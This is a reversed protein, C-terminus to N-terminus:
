FKLCDVTDIAATNIYHQTTKTNSHGLVAAAKLIGHENAVTHGVFHRLSHPTIRGLSPELRCWRRFLQAINTAGLRNYRIDHFLPASGAPSHVSGKQVTCLPKFAVYSDYYGKVTKGNWVRDLLVTKIEREDEYRLIHKQKHVSFSITSDSITVHEVNLATLQGIRMGTQALAVLMFQNRAALFPNATTDMALGILTEVKEKTVHQKSWPESTFKFTHKLFASDKESFLGIALFCNSLVNAAVAKSSDKMFRKSLWSAVCMGNIDDTSNITHAETLLKKVSSLLLRKSPASRQKRHKNTPLSCYAEVSEIINDIYISEM